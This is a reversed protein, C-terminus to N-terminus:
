ARWGRPLIQQLMPHPHETVVEIRTGPGRTEAPHPISREGAREGLSDSMRQAVARAAIRRPELM